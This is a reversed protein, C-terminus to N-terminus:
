GGSPGAGHCPWFFRRQAPSGEGEAKSDKSSGRGDSRLASDYARDSEKMAEYMDAMRQWSAEETLAEERCDELQILKWLPLNKEKQEELLDAFSTYM